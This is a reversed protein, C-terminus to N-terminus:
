LESNKNKDKKSLQPYIDLIAKIRSLIKLFNPSEPFDNIGIIIPKPQLTGAIIAVLVMSLRLLLSIVISIIGNIDQAPLIGTYISM